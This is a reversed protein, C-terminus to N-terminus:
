ADDQSIATPEQVNKEGKGNRNHTDVTGHNNKRNKANPVRPEAAMPTHHGPALRKPQKPRQQDSAVAQNTTPRKTGGKGENQNCGEPWEM